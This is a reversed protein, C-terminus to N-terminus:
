YMKKKEDVSMGGPGLGVLLLFGGMISLNQFFDYKHFDRLPHDAKLSWWNNVIINSISLVTVFFAASWKAKFGVAVMICVLIGVVSLSLRLFTMKGWIVSFFLFILLIRGLLQMYASRRNESIV